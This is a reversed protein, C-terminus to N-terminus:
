RNVTFQFLRQANETTQTAIQNITCGRLDAVFKAIHRIYAPENRKGRFPQPALFPGDTELLLRDDPIMRAVEQLQKANKFTVIGPISVYFGLDIVAQALQCDGSFCHMVGGRHHGILATKLIALVDDHAERDHIIVPLDLETALALQNRFHKRQLAPEAYNKVYDLGIEGYAIIHQRNATIMERLEVYTADTISTVDHPHVGVAASICAHDAALAIARRSSAIDIGITLIHDIGNLKARDLVEILDAAYADMDLHCHSDVLSLRPPFAQHQINEM